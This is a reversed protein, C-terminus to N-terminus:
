NGKVFRVGDVWLQFGYGWTDAHFEIGTVESFNVIASDSRSWGNDGAFPLFVEQWNNLTSNYINVPTSFNASGTSTHIRIITGEQFFNENVNETYLWFKLSDRETLSAKINENSYCLAVDFGGETDIKISSEGVKKNSTDDIITTPSDEVVKYFWDESNLESLDDEYNIILPEQVYVKRIAFLTDGTIFTVRFGIDFSGPLQDTIILATDKNGEIYESNNVSWAYSDVQEEFLANQAWSTGNFAVSDGITVYSSFMNIKPTMNKPDFTAFAIDGSNGLIPLVGSQGLFLKDISYSRARIYYKSSDSMTALYFSGGYIKYGIEYELDFIYDYYGTENPSVIVKVTGLDPYTGIFSGQVNHNRVTITDLTDVFSNVPFYGILVSDKYVRLTDLDPIESLIGLTDFSYNGLSDTVSTLGFTSISLVIDKMPADLYNSVNGSLYIGVREGVGAPLVEVTDVIDIVSGEHYTIKLNVVVNSDTGNNVIETELLPITKVPYLSDDIQWEYSVIESYFIDEYQILYPNALLGVTEGSLIAGGPSVKIESVLNQPDFEKITLNGSVARFPLVESRGIYTGLTDYVRVFVAFSDNASTQKFDAFGSINRTSPHYDMPIIVSDSNETGLRFAISKVEGISSYTGLLIGEISRRVIVIDPLTDIFNEVAYTAVLISEQYFLITDTTLNVLSDTSYGLYYKGDIDTTDTLGLVKMKVTVDKMPENKDNIVGGTLSVILETESETSVSKGSSCSLLYVSILLLINIIKMM